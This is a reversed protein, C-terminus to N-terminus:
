HGQIYLLKKYAVKSFLADKNIKKSPKKLPYIKEVAM